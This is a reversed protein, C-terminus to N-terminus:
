PNTRKIWLLPHALQAKSCSESLSTLCSLASADSFDNLNTRIIEQLDQSNSNISANGSFVIISDKDSLEVDYQQVKEKIEKAEKKNSEEFIQEVVNKVSNSFLHFPQPFFTKSITIVDKGEPIHIAMAKLNNCEPLILEFEQILRSLSKFSDQYILGISGVGGRIIGVMGIIDDEPCDLDFLYFTKSGNSFEICEILNKYPAANEDIQLAVEWGNIYTSSRQLSTKNPM